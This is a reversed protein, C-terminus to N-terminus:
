NFRDMPFEASPGPGRSPSMMDVYAALMELDYDGKLFTKKVGLEVARKIHPGEAYATLMIVPTQQWRLYSRIVELFSTGDMQPMRADLIVVDPTDVTLAALAERGNPASAVRHGRKRLFLSIATRTDENDDVVLVIAMRLSLLYRALAELRRRGSLAVLCRLSPKM